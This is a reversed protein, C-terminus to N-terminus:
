ERSRQRTEALRKLNVLGKDFEDGIMKDIALVGMWRAVPNNGMDATMYWKLETKEEGQLEWGGMAADSGEFELRTVVRKKPIAEIITLKGNGVNPNSSQWKYWAGNGAVTDGYQKKMNPDIQNWTMWGDYSRLDALLGYVTGAPANISITREVYVKKPLFFAIICLSVIVVLLWFLVRKFIKM